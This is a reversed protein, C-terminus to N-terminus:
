AEGYRSEVSLEDLKAKLASDLPKDLGTVNTSIQEPRTAGLIVSTVTPNAAVWAIAMAALPMSAEVALPRMAEVMSFGRDNWYHDRYGPAILFRGALNEKQHKGSLMGGAIPNFVTVGLGEEACLPQMEREFERSLLNYLLQISTPATVSKTESRGIARALQYALFNSVGVYRAKGSRVVAEFADLTEDIPTEPDPRHLLYLDVYDTGLRALSRDISALIHKRSGGKDWPQPGTAHGCKTTLVFQHRRGKLWRGVIEESRGMQEFPARFPYVDATDLFTIGAESAADLIALSTPEDCQLGFTMTGLCARSVSLGTKGLRRHEM